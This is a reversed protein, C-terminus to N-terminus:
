GAGFTRRYAGPSVGLHRRFARAMDTSARFGSAFSVEKIPIATEMLLRCAHAVRLRVLHAHMHEGVIATFRSTLYRPNCGLARAVHSLSLDHAAYHWQLYTLANEVLTVNRQEAGERIAVSFGHGAEVRRIQAAHKRLEAVEKSLAAVLSDQCIGAVILKLVTTATSFAQDSTEPGAVLKAVGVLHGDVQIPVWSCHL